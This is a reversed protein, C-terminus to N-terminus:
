CLQQVELGADELFQTNSHIGTTLKSFNNFMDGLVKMAELQQATPNPVSEKLHAILMDKATSYPAKTGLRRLKATVSPMSRLKTPVVNVAERVLDHEALPKDKNAERLAQAEKNAAVTNGFDPVYDTTIDLGGFM